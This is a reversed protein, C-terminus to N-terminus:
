MHQGGWPAEDKLFLSASTVNRLNRWRQEVTHLPHFIVRHSPSLGRAPLGTAAAARPHMDLVGPARRLHSDAMPTM